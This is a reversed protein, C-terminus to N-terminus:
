IVDVHDTATYTDTEGSPNIYTSTAKVTVSAGPEIGTKQLHLVWVNEFTEVIDPNFSDVIEALEKFQVRTRSNLDIANGEADKATIEFTASDPKVTIGYDNDTVTGNLEVKIPVDGGPKIPKKMITAKLETVTQTITNVSTGEGTTFLISPVFPSVSYIGWHHLFYHTALTNPDYFSGNEYVTDKCVFFDETTLLAVADPIPFEDIVITRVNIDALEVHFISSLVEVSLSAATEPTVFLVLEQPKAFVPINEVASSNYLTSPFRLKGVLTRVATLFEKGTEEDTPMASLHHKYFGWRQEYEAILQKMILYEDYNDSNIPTEMIGAVLQNLGYEDVFATRLEDRTITIPYKDRRNQSHYWSQVEPRNMKLLDTVNDSYSHAKIWAPAIEQITSGYAMKGDKFVALPNDYRKGRVYTFGIRNVLSDLFQNYFQRNMPDFLAEMTEAITAQSSDPIRQQYDNTQSLWIKALITNNNVSM